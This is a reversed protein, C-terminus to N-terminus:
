FDLWFWPNYGGVHKLVDVKLVAASNFAFTTPGGPGVQTADYYRPVAGWRFWTPSISIGSDTIRPVIAAISPDHSFAAAIESVRFLFDQPLATDQDLTLLWDYGGAAAQLLAQNYALSLGNNQEAAQYEVDEPLKGPDQGDCTNDYLLTKLELRDHPVAEKARQLTVFSPTQLPSMKYVVIVALIRVPYTKLQSEPPTLIASQAHDERRM